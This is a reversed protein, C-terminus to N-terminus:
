SIKSFQLLESFREITSGKLGDLAIGISVIDVPSPLSSPILRSRLSPLQTFEVHSTILCTTMCIEKNGKELIMGM